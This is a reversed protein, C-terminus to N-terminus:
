HGTNFLVSGTVESGKVDHLLGDLDPQQGSVCNIRGIRPMRPRQEGVENPRPRRNPGAVRVDERQRTDPHRRSDDRDRDPAAEPEAQPPGPDVLHM